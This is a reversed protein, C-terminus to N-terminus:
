HLADSYSLGHVRCQHAKLNEEFLFTLSCQQDKCRYAPSAQFHSSPSRVPSATLAYLSVCLPCNYQNDPITGPVFSKGCGQCFIPARRDDEEVDMSVISFPSTPPSCSVESNHTSEDPTKSKAKVSPRRSKIPGIEPKLDLDITEWEDHRKRRRLGNDAAHLARALELSAWDDDKM